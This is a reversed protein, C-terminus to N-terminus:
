GDEIALNFLECYKDPDLRRMVDMAYDETTIEIRKDETDYTFYANKATRYLEFYHFPMYVHGPAWLMPGKNVKRRFSYILEATETNYMKGDIIAKMSM